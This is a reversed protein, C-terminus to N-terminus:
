RVSEKEIKICRVPTYENAFWFLESDLCKGRYNICKRKCALGKSAQKGCVESQNKLLGLSLSDGNPLVSDEFDVLDISKRLETKKVRTVHELDSQVHDRVIQKRELWFASTIDGSLFFLGPPTILEMGGTEGQRFRPVQQAAFGYPDKGCAGKCWEGPALLDEFVSEKALVEPRKSAVERVLGAWDELSPIRWSAPCVKNAVSDPYLRGFDRCNRNTVGLNTAGICYAVSDFKSKALNRKMWKKGAIVTFSTDLVVEGADIEETQQISNMHKWIKSPPRPWGDVMKLSHLERDSGQIQFKLHIPNERDVSDGDFKRAKGWSFQPFVASWTGDEHDTIRLLAPLDSGNIVQCAFRKQDHFRAAEDRLFVVSDSPPLDWDKNQHNKLYPRVFISQRVLDNAVSDLGPTEICGKALMKKLLAPVGNTKISDDFRLLRFDSVVTGYDRKKHEEFHIKLRKFKGPRIVVLRSHMWEDFNGDLMLGNVEVGDSDSEHYYNFPMLHTSNFDFQFSSLHKVELNRGGFRKGEGYRFVFGDISVPKEFEIVFSSKEKSVWATSDSEDLLNSAPYIEGRNGQFVNSVRLIGTDKGYVVPAACLEPKSECANKGAVVQMSFIGFVLWVVPCIRGFFLGKRPQCVVSTLALQVIRFPIGVVLIMVDKWRPCFLARFGTQERAGTCYSRETPLFRHRLDCGRAVM